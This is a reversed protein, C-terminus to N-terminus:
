VPFIYTFLQLALFILYMRVFNAEVTHLFDDLIASDQRYGAEADRKWKALSKPCSRLWDITVMISNRYEGALSIDCGPSFNTGSLVWM